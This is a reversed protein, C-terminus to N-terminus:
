SPPITCAQDKRVVMWIQRARENECQPPIARDVQSTSRKRESWESAGRHRRCYRRQDSIMESNVVAFVNFMLPVQPGGRWCGNPVPMERSAFPVQYGPVALAKLITRRIM